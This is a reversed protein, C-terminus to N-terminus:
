VMPMTRESSTMHADCSVVRLITMVGPSAAARNPTVMPMHAIAATDAMKLTVRMSGAPTNLRYAAANADKWVVFAPGSAPGAKQMDSNQGFGGNVVGAITSHAM